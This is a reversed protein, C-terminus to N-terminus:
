KRQVENEITAQSIATTVAGAVTLYEAIKLVIVPLSVPSALLAAGAAALLLGWQSLTNFFEPTPAQFRQILTM